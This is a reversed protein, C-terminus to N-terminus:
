GRVEKIYKAVISSARHFSPLDTLLSYKHWKELEFEELNQLRLEILWERSFSHGRIHFYLKDWLAKEPSAILVDQDDYLTKLYGFFHEPKIHKYIFYRGATQFNEARATTVSTPNPVEEPILGYFALAWELSLYSPAVVTNAIVAPSVRYPRYPEDILYWGRRIQILKGANVWRSLQVQIYNESEPFIRLMSSHFIPYEGFFNLFESWKM